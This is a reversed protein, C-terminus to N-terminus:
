VSERRYLIFRCIRRSSGTQGIYKYHKYATTNKFEYIGTFIQPVSKDEPIELLTDWNEGDNSAVLQQAYYGPCWNGQNDSGTIQLINAVVPQAFNYQLWVNGTSSDKDVQPGSRNNAQTMVINANCGTLECADTVLTDLQPSVRQFEMINKTAPYGFLAFGCIGRSGSWEIKFRSFEGLYSVKHM